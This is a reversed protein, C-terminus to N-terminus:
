KKRKLTAISNEFDAKKEPRVNYYGIIIDGLIQEKWVNGNEQKGEFYLTDSPHKKIISNVGISMRNIINLRSGTLNNNGIFFISSDPYVVRYEVHYDGTFDYTGKILNGGKPVEVTYRLPVSKSGEEKTELFKILRYENYIKKSCSISFLCFFLTLIITRM